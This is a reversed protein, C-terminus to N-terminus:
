AQEMKPGREGERAILALLGMVTFYVSWVIALVAVLWMVNIGRVRVGATEVYQAPGTAIAAEASATSRQYQASGEFGAAFSVKGESRPMFTFTALGQQDTIAKGLLVESETNMFEATRTFVVEAGSVPAGSARATVRATLAMEQGVAAGTAPLLEINTAEPGDALAVAGWLLWAILALTAWALRPRNSLATM